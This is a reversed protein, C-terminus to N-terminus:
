QENKDGMLEQKKGRILRVGIWIILVGVLVGPIV